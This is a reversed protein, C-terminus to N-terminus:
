LRCLLPFSRPIVNVISVKREGRRGVQSFNGLEDVKSRIVGQDTWMKGIESKDCQGIGDYGTQVKKIGKLVNKRGEIYEENKM